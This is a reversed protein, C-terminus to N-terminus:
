PNAAVREHLDRRREINLAIARNIEATLSRMAAAPDTARNEVQNLREAIWRNVISLDVYPSRDQVAADAVADVFVQHFAADPVSRNALAGGNRALSPLPPLADGDGVVLASYEPSALYRLFAVAADRHTTRANIGAARSTAMVCSPQGPFHPERVAALHPKLEPYNALQVIYWRGICIMAADGASFWNINGSGWGGQGSAAASQEPPPVIGEVHMLDAYQQMAAVAEPSDLMCRRGDATFYHASHSTLLDNFFTPGANVMGFHRRGSDGPARVIARGTAVFDEWTWDPRPYPVHHDDFIARNYLIAQVNVNCPFRYQRGGVSLAPRIAPFTTEPAFGAAPALDTLDLLVGSEAMTEMTDLDLDMVDPGVGTACQIVLRAREGTDVQVRLDPHQRVFEGIQTQRAPNPDTSWRLTTLGPGGPPQVTAMALTLALAFAALSLVLVYKM